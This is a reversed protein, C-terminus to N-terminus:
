KVGRIKKKFRELGRLFKILFSEGSAYKIGGTKARYKNITRLKYEHLLKRFISTEYDKEEGEGTTKIKHFRFDNKNVLGRKVAEDYFDEFRKLHAPSSVFAIDFLKHKGTKEELDKMKKLTYLVNEETDSSKGEIRIDRPLVGQNRLYTYIRYSQGKRMGEFGQGKYGSILFYGTDKLKDKESLAKKTRNIDAELTGTPIIIADLSKKSLFLFVSAIFFVLAILYIINQGSPIENIVNGTISLYPFSLIILALLLFISSLIRKNM